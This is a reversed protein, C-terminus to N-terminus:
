GATLWFLEPSRGRSPPPFPPPRAAAGGDEAATVCCPAEPRRGQSAAAGDLRAPGRPRASGGHGAGRRTPKRRAPCSSRLPAPGAPLPPPLYRRSRARRAGPAEASAPPRCPPRSHGTHPLPTQQRPLGPPRPGPPGPQLDRDRPPRAATATAPRAHPRRPATGHGAAPRVGRSPTRSPSPRPEGAATGPRLPRLRHARESRGPAPTRPLSLQAAVASDRLGPARPGGPRDAGEAPSAFSGPPSPPRPPLDGTSPQAPVACGAARSPRQLLLSFILTVTRSRAM